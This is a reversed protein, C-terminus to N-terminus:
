TAPRRTGTVMLLLSLALGGGGAIMMILGTVQLDIVELRLTVAYRLIAGFVLLFISLGLGM